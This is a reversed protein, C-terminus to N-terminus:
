AAAAIRQASLRSDHGLAVKKGASREKLWYVYAKVAAKVAEDTLETNEGLAIGRLDTGSKM